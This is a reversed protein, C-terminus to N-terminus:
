ASLGARQQRDRWLVVVYLGLILGTWLHVQFLPGGSGSERQRSAQLWRKSLGSM